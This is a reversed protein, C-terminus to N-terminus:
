FRRSQEPKSKLMNVVGTQDGRNRAEAWSGPRDAGATDARNPSFRSNFIKLVLLRNRLWHTPRTDVWWRRLWLWQGLATETVAGPGRSFRM